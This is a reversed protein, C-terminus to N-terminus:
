ICYTGVYSVLMLSGINLIGFMDNIKIYRNPNAFDMTVALVPVIKISFKRTYFEIVKVRYCDCSVLYIGALDVTYALLMRENKHNISYKFLKEAQWNESSWDYKAIIKKKKM